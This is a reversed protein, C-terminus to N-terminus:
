IYLLTMSNAYDYKNVYISIYLYKIILKKNEFICNDSKSQYYALKNTYTFYQVLSLHQIKTISIIRYYFTNKIFKKSNDIINIINSKNITQKNFIAFLSIIHKELYYINYKNYNNILYNFLVEKININLKASILKLINCAHKYNKINKVKISTTIKIMFDLYYQEINLKEMYYYIIILRLEVSQVSNVHQLFIYYTNSKYIYRIFKFCHINIKSLYKFANTINKVGLIKEFENGIRPYSIFKIKDCYKNFVSEMSYSFKFNLKNSFYIARLFRLPDEIFNNVNIPRIIKNNIDNIGNYPDLILDYERIYGISNITFDRREASKKYSNYCDISIDFDTHKNGTCKEKRPLAIDINYGCIKFVGFSIGVFLIKFDKELTKQLQTKSIFYAEIDCDYSETNVITNRIIGGVFVALAGKVFLKKTVKKYRETTQKLRILYQLYYTNNYM